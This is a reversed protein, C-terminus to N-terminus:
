LTIGAAARAIADQQAKQKTLDQESQFNTLDRQLGALYNAKATEMDSGRRSFADTLDFTSKAQLGSNYMGRSAYDNNNADLSQVKEIGLDNNRAIFDTNYRNTSDGMQAKYDSLAKVLAATQSMYTSDTKWANPDVPAAISAVSGFGSGGGGGTFSSGGGGGSSSSTSTKRAAQTPVATPSFPNPDFIPQKKKVKVSSNSAADPKYTYSSGGASGDM